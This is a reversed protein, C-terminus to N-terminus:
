VLSNWLPEILFFVSQYAAYLFVVFSATLAAKPKDLPVGRRMEVSRAEVEFFDTIFLGLVLMSLVIGGHHHLTLYYFSVLVLLVNSLEHPVWRDITERDDDRAQKRYNRFALLRTVMNVLVLGLVLFEIVPELVDIPGLLSLAQM